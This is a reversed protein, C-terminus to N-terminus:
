KLRVSTSLPHKGANAERHRAWDVARQRASFTAQRMRLGGAGQTEELFPNDDESLTEQLKADLTKAEENDYGVNQDSITLIGEQIVVRGTDPTEIWSFYNYQGIELAGGPMSWYGGTYSDPVPVWTLPLPDPLEPTEAAAKTLIIGGGEPPNMGPLKIVEIPNYRKNKAM